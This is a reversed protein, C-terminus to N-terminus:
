ILMGDAVPSSSAPEDGGAAAIAVQKEAEVEAKAVTKPAGSGDGMIDGKAEKPQKPQPTAEKAGAGMTQLRPRTPGAELCVPGGKGDGNALPAAAAETM